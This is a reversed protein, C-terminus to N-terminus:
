VSRMYRIVHWQKRGVYIDPLNGLTRFHFSSTLIVFSVCLYSYLSRFLVGDPSNWLNEHLVIFKLGGGNGVLGMHVRVCARTRVWMGYTGRIEARFCPRRVKSCVKLSMYEPFERRITTYGPEPLLMSEYLIRRFVLMRVSLFRDTLSSVCLVSCFVCFFM